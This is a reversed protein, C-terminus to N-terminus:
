EKRQKIEVYLEAIFLEEITEEPTGFFKIISTKNQINNGFNNSYIISSQNKYGFMFNKITGSNTQYKNWNIQYNLTENDGAFASGLVNDSRKFSFKVSYIFGELITPSFEIIPKNALKDVLVIKVSHNPPLQLLYKYINLGLHVAIDEANVTDEKIAAEPWKFEDTAKGVFPFVLITILILCITSRKMKKRKRRM